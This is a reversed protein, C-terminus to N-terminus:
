ITQRCFPELDNFRESFPSIQPDQWEGNDKIIKMIVSLERAPSQLTFYAETEDSSMTFDRVKSFKFFIHEVFPQIGKDHELQTETHKVKLKEEKNCSVLSFAVALLLLSLM